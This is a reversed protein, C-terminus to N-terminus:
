ASLTARVERGAPTTAISSIEATGAPLWPHAITIREGPRWADGPGLALALDWLPRSRSALLAAALAVADRETVLWPAELAAEMDGYRAVADAASATVTGLPKGSAWDRGWALRIRTALHEASAEASAEDIDVALLSAIIPEAGPIWARLPWASWGAGVSAMLGALAERLSGREAILGGLHLGPWGARLGGWDGSGAGCTRLLDTVIDAPQDILAGTVPDRKGAVAAVLPGKPPRTLRLTAFAHDAGDLRQVLEWGDLEGDDDRVSTVAVIPHDAVLWELGKADMALPALLVRGYVWPLVADPDMGAVAAGSRLPIPDAILRM